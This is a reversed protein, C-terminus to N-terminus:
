DEWFAPKTDSSGPLLRCDCCYLPRPLPPGGFPGPTIACDRTYNDLGRAAVSPSLFARAHTVSAVEFIGIIRENGTSIPLINGTIPSPPSDFLSGTNAVQNEVMKWFNFASESINFLLIQPSYKLQFRKNSNVSFILVSDISTDQLGKSTFLKIFSPSSENVFCVTSGDLDSPPVADRDTWCSTSGQSPTRAMYTSNWDFRYYVEQSDSFDLDVSIQVRNENVSGGTESDIREVAAIANIKKVQIAPRLEEFPSEYQEGDVEIVLKYSDGIVGPFSSVAVYRGNSSYAFDFTQGSNDEVYVNADSIAEFQKTEDLNKAHNITVSHRINQNTLLADVVIPQSNAEDIEPNFTEVCSTLILLCFIYVIRKM